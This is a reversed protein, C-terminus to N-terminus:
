LNTYLKLIFYSYKIYLKHFFVSCFTHKEWFRFNNTTLEKKRNYKGSDVFIHNVFNAGNYCFVQFM